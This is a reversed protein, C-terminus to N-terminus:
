LCWLPSINIHRVQDGGPTTVIQSNLIPHLLMNLFLVIAFFFFFVRSWLGVPKNVVSSFMSPFPADQLTIVLIYFTPCSSQILFEVMKITILEKILTYECQASLM